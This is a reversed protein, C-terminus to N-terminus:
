KRKKSLILKDIPEAIVYFVPILLFLFWYPHWLNFGLGLFCYIAVILVPFLFLSIKRKKISDFISNIIPIFLWFIWSFEWGNPVLFGVLFFSLFCFASIISLTIIFSPKKTFDKNENSVITKDDIIKGDISDSVIEQKSNSNGENLDQNVLEDLTIGFLKSLMILNNTDPLTIDQEWKSIAQRSVNLKSALDEQSLNNKIRLEKIKEGLTM